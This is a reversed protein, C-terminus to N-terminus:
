ENMVKDWLEGEGVVLKDDLTKGLRRLKMEIRSLILADSTVDRYTMEKGNKVLPGTYFTKGGRDTRMWRMITKNSDSLVGKLEEILMDRVLPMKEEEDKGRFTQFGGRDLYQWVAKRKWIRGPMMGQEDQAKGGLAEKMLKQGEERYALLMGRQQIPLAGGLTDLQAKSKPDANINNTYATLSATNLEAPLPHEAFFSRWRGKEEEGLTLPIGDIMDAADIVGASKRDRITQYQETGFVQSKGMDNVTSQRTLQTLYANDEFIKPKVRNLWEAEQVPFDRMRRRFRPDVKPPPTTFPNIAGATGAARQKAKTELSERARTELKQAINNNIIARAEITANIADRGQDRLAKVLTAESDNESQTISAVLAPDALNLATQESAIDAPTIHELEAAYATRFTEVGSGYEDNGQKYESASETVWHYKAELMEDKETDTLHDSNMAATTQARNSFRMLLPSHLLDKGLNAFGQASIRAIAKETEKIENLNQLELAEKESKARAIEQETNVTSTGARREAEKREELNEIEGQKTKIDGERSSIRMGGRVTENARDLDDRQSRFQEDRHYADETSLGSGFTAQVAAGTTLKRFSDGLASKGFRSDKLREDLRRVSLNPVFRKTQMALRDGMSLQKGEKLKAEAAAGKARWSETGFGRLAFRGALGGAAGSAAGALKGGMKMMTSSGKAGMSQAIVLCGILLGSMLIFNFIIGVSTPSAGSSTLASAFSAGSIYQAFRSDQITAVVVYALAMYLPAFFAQSWLKSWWEHAMSQAGPLIWAVFALPSLLMLMLLTVTRIVFLVAAAFFVFAAILMFISGFIGIIIINVPHLQNTPLAGAVSGAVNQAAVDKGLQRSDYLTQLKLGNMFADSIRPQFIDGSQPPPIMLRYFHLAAINSTDIIAKTIFLSFNIFLAVLVMHALLGWAKEAQIGIIISIGSWLAVFIFVINAIDRLVRWGIEVVPVQDLVKQLNLSFDLSYDFLVGAFYLFRAMIWMISNVVWTAVTQLATGSVKDVMYSVVGSAEVPTPHLLAAGFVGTVVCVLLLLAIRSAVKRNTFFRNM